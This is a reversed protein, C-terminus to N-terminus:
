IMGLGVNKNAESKEAPLINDMAEKFAEGTDVFFLRIRDLTIYPDYVKNKEDYIWGCTLRDYVEKWAASAATSQITGSSFWSNSNRATDLEQPDNHYCYSLYSDLTDKTVIFIEDENQSTAKEVFQNWRDENITGDRNWIRTTGLHLYKAYGNTEDAIFETKGFPCMWNGSHTSNFVAIAGGKMTTNESHIKKLGSSVTSPSFFGNKTFLAVHNALADTKEYKLEM